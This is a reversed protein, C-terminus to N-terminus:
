AAVIWDRTIAAIERFWYQMVLYWVTEVNLAYSVMDLDNATCLARYQHFRDTVILYREYCNYQDALAKANTINELTSTSKDEMIIRTGSVGKDVLYNKMVLAEPYDEDPGQGGTVICYAQPHELLFEAAKDLRAKLMLSPRDGKVKCGLVVVTVQGSDEPLTNASASVMKGSVFALYSVGLLVCVAVAAIVTRGTKSKCGTIQPWYLACGFFFAAICAPPIIGPSFVGLVIPFVSFLFLAASAIMIMKRPLSIDEWGQPIYWPAAQASKKETPLETVAKSRDPKSM